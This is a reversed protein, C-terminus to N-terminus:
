IWKTKDQQFQLRSAETAEQLKRDITANMEAMVREMNSKTVM